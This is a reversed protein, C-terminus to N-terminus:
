SSVRATLMGALAPKLQELARELDALAKDAGIFTGNRGLIELKLAAAFAGRAGFNDVCGKLNHAASRLQNADAAGLAAHIEKLLRPCERLFLEALEALLERDGGVRELATEEDLVSPAEVEAASDSAPEPQAAAVSEVKDFLEQARIPKCIYHDMGVSLCRERDGKMAYATMAIIPIHAGTLKEQERIATTAELGDMDPMQVDMLILDFRRGRWEALAERGNNVVVVGHGRKELLRVALKQNVLNDEALLIRLRRHHQALSPQPVAGPEDPPLPMGLSQMVAKWLEAQRVPKTLCASISLRRRRAVDGPQGGSTLVIVTTGALEPLQRVREVLTYGDMEPMHVDVLALPFPEGAAAARLMADLAAPGSDVLTPRMQWHCLTEELIRRNTANDDVVLVPMGQMSAPEPPVSRPRAGKQVAFSATFHFTSGRGAESEVWIRGNMAEVLRRAIALGLGTGGYKRTTSGDAQAFPDFIFQLKDAPVGIGTDRVAFQLNCIESQLNASSQGPSEMPVRDDATQLGVTVVVEGRETFKLANGVLNVIVQGLRVPDGVLHDPVAAPVHCALELGKQYARPALTNLTDGLQDRLSFPANDLELKGAEVKSFDLIDNIVALLSHASKQVLELYDRQEISLETELVLDTMGIIANMPTRIEHSMNALFISKARNASEAAEKAKQMAEQGLVKDTVDWFIAQTGVVSGYADYVPSKLVQVYIKEGDPKCHEETIDLVQRGESVRRDDQRYKEALHSPYFDHDTKGLIEERAKGVTRCFLLNAFSFHGELDKRFVNLPLTEVLSHYLAESNRVAEEALRQEEEARKREMFQGIQSGLASIMSLLAPDPKAIERGLFEIVGTVDRAFLIPFAFAGHLGVKEATERRPMEAHEAFDGVWIPERQQWVKGPLGVNAAFASRRTVEEFEQGSFDPRRWVDVCRIVEAHRDVQWLAGVEWGASDCIAQLIRPTAEGLTTSEALARTVAHQAALRRQALKEETVDRFVSLGGRVIGFEDRLPRATVSLWIGQPRRENRI